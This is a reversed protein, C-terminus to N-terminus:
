ADGLEVSRAAAAAMGVDVVLGTLIIGKCCGEIVDDEDDDVERGAARKERQVELTWLMVQISQSSSKNGQERQIRVYLHRSYRWISTMAPVVMPTM